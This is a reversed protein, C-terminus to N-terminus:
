CCVSRRWTLRSGFADVVHGQAIFNQDKFHHYSSDTELCESFATRLSTMIATISPDKAKPLSRCRPLAQRNVMRIRGSVLNNNWCLFCLPSCFKKNIKTPNRSAIGKGFQSRLCHLGILLSL